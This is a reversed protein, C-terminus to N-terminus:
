YLVIVARDTRGPSGRMLPSWTLACPVAAGFWLERRLVAPRARPRSGGGPTPLVQPRVRRGSVFAGLHPGRLAPRGKGGEDLSGPTFGSPCSSGCPAGRDGSEKPRPARRQRPVSKDDEAGVASFDLLSGLRPGGRFVPPEPMIRLEWDSGRATRGQAPVSRAPCHLARCPSASHSPSPSRRRRAIDVSLRSGWREGSRRAAAM